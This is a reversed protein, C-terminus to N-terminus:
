RLHRLLRERGVYLAACALGIAVLIVSSPAPIPAGGSMPATTISCSRTATGAAADLAHASFSTTGGVGTPAGIIFGTSPTLSLGQPLSGITSYTYPPTGGTAVLLSNYPVGIQAASSPCTVALATPPQGETAPGPNVMTNTDLTVEATQALARGNLAAGTNLTVSAYAMITGNFTSYTGLTASSGVQWFINAAQAGGILRVRSGSFTTLASAVQFIFVSNVDGQGDLTLTEGVAIMLSSTSKYLGPPLTQGGLNGAVTVPLTRGAADNYAATLAVQALGAPGDASHIAGGIVTGPPFGNVATGPSVGVNGYVVTPGTNTVATGALVTFNVLDPGLVVPLQAAQLCVSFTAYLLLATFKRM